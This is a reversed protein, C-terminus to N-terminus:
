FDNKAVHSLDFFYFVFTIRYYTASILWVIVHLVFIFLKTVNM